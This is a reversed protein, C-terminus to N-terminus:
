REWSNRWTRQGCSGLAQGDLQIQEEPDRKLLFASRRQEAEPALSPFRPHPGLTNVPILAGCPWALTLTAQPKTQLTNKKKKLQRTLSDGNSGGTGKEEHGLHFPVSLQSECRARNEEIAFVGEPQLMCTIAGVVTVPCAAPSQAALTGHLVRFSINIAVWCAIQTVRTVTADGRRPM